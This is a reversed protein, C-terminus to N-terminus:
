VLEVPESPNFMLETASLAVGLNQVVNGTTSPATNTLGGATTHLFQNAGPTMGTLQDNVGKFYVTADAGSGVAALVFGHAQKGATTADAKRVKAGSSNHVNVFNGASLAESTTIAIPADGSFMTEDIQGSANLIVTKGASGAGASTATANLLTPDLVGQANTAVIKEADAVGASTTIAAILKRVGSILTSYRPAAM